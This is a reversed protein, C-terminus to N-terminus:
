THDGVPRGSVAEKTENQDEGSSTKSGHYGHYQGIVTTNREVTAIGQGHMRGRSWSGEYTSGDLKQASELDTDGFNEKM